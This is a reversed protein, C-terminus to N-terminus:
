PRAASFLSFGDRALRRAELVDIHKGALDIKLLIARDETLM